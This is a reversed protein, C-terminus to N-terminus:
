KSRDSYRVTNFIIDDSRKTIAYRARQSVHRPWSQYINECM